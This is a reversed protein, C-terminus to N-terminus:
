GPARPTSAAPDVTGEATLVVGYDRAAGEPSVTGSLVDERVEDLPRAMPDGYGGGGGTRTVIRTGKPFERARMKLIHEVTGDPLVIDILPGQGDKGGALGWAPSKSREFWLAAEAAEVLEDARVVGPGGRWRGPGG